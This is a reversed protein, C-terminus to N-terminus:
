FEWVVHAVVEFRDSGNNLGVPIGLGIEVKRSVRWLYGPTLYMQNEAGHNNWKNNAWNFELTAAGRPFLVFFGSGLNLEHAAPEADDADKPTNVRQVLSAGIETFFQTHHLEPYDRALIVAPQYELFGESLDRNVDGVPVEISFRPAIHFSSGGINMFSYQTGIELDGVGRVVSHNAPYRQVSSDWEAEVQWRDNLGYELSLPITWTNGGTQNQYVSALEVELEGKEEPYVVDTKFLEEIPRKVRNTSGAADDDDARAPAPSFSIVLVALLGLAWQGLTFKKDFAVPVPTLGASYFSDFVM